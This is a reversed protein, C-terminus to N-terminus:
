GHHLWAERKVLIPEGENKHSFVCSFLREPMRTGEAILGVVLVENFLECRFGPGHLTIYLCGRSCFDREDDEVDAVEVKHSLKVIEERNSMARGRVRGSVRRVGRPV